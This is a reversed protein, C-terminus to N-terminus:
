ISFFLIYCHHSFYGELFTNDLKHINCKVTNTPAELMEFHLFYFFANLPCLHGLKMSFDFHAYCSYQLLSLLWYYIHNTYQTFFKLANPRSFSFNSSLFWLTAIRWNLAILEYLMVPFIILNSSSSYVTTLFM